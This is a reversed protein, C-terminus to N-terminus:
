LRELRTEHFRNVAAAAFHEAVHTVFNRLQLLCLHIASPKFQPHSAPHQDNDNHATPQSHHTPTPNHAIHQSQDHAKYDTSYSEPPQVQEIPFLTLPPYHTTGSWLLLACLM